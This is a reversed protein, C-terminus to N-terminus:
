KEDGCADKLIQKMEDLGYFISRFGEEARNSVGFYIPIRARGIRWLRRQCLQLEQELKELQHIVQEINKEM